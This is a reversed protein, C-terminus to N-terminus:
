YCFCRSIYGECELCGFLDIDSVDPKSISGDIAFSMVTDWYLPYEEPIFSAAFM